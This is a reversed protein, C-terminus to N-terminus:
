EVKALQRQLQDPTADACRDIRMLGRRPPVVQSPFIGGESAVRLRGNTHEIM